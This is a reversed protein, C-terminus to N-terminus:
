YNILLTMKADSLVGSNNIIKVQCSSLDINTTRIKYDWFDDGYFQVTPIMFSTPKTFYNFKYTGTSLKDVTTINKSFELISSLGNYRAYIQNSEIVINASLPNVNMGTSNAGNATSVLGGSVAITKTSVKELPVSDLKIKGDELYLPTEVCDHSINGSSLPLLIIKGASLSLPSSLLDLAVSNASLPNLTIINSDSISIKNNASSYLGAISEWDSLSSGDNIKVRRLLNKDTDFAIDGVECPSLTTVDPVSGKFLNGIVLGGSLSGNGVFLRETDTTYGLEGSKLVIKKRDTNLGQRVILQLLTNQFIEM